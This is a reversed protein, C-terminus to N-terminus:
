ADAAISDAVRRRAADGPANEIFIMHAVRDAAVRAWQRMVTAFMYAAIEPMRARRERNVGPGVAKQAM